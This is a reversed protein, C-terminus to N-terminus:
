TRRWIGFHFFFFFDSVSKIADCSDSFRFSFASNLQIKLDFGLDLLIKRVLQFSFTSNKLTTPKLRFGSYTLNELRM